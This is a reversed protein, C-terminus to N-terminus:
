KTGGGDRDGVKKNKIKREARDEAKKEVITQM